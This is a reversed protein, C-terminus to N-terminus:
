FWVEKVRKGTGRSACGHPTCRPPKACARGPMLDEDGVGMPGWGPAPGRTPVGPPYRDDRLPDRQRREEEELRQQLRERQLAERDQEQAQPGGGDGDGKGSPAGVGSGAAATATHATAAQAKSAEQTPSLLLAEASQQIGHELSDQQTYRFSEVERHLREHHQRRHPPTGAPKYYTEPGPSELGSFHSGVQTDM